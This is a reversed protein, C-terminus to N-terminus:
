KELNHFNEITLRNALVENFFKEDGEPTTYKVNRVRGTLSICSGKKIDHFDPMGRGIWASVNHWTTEEKFNGNRDKFTENTALSFRVVKSDGVEHIRPESGVNGKLEIRNISREMSNNTNRWNPKIKFTPPLRFM